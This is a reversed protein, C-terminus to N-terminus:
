LTTGLEVKARAKATIYSVEGIVQFGTDILKGLAEM